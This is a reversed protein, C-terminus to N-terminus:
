QFSRSPFREVVGQSRRLWKVIKHHKNKKAKAIASGNEDFVRDDKFLEKVILFHGNESAMILARNNDDSPDVRSDKLLEKVVLVHGDQSANIIAFNMHSSPDVRSDKLLLKVVGLHGKESAYRIAYNYDDSPDVRSDKLLEKVVLTHGNFSADVISQNDIDSPDVREDKLLEIVTDLHGKESAAWISVNGRDSPDVREDKLLLKVMELRGSESALMIAYNDDSGPNVKPDKLLVKVKDILGRKVVCNFLGGRDLHQNKMLTDFNSDSFAECRRVDSLDFPYTLLNQKSYEKKHRSVKVMEKEPLFRMINGMVDGYLRRPRTTSKPTKSGTRLDLGKADLVKERILRKHTPGNLNIKKGSIPNVIKLVKKRDVSKSVKGVNRVNRKVPSKSWGPSKRRRILSM